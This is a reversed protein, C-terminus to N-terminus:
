VLTFENQIGVTRYTGDDKLIVSHTLDLDVSGVSTQVLHLREQLFVIIVRAQRLLQRRFLQLDVIQQLDCVISTSIRDLLLTAGNRCLLIRAPPEGDEGRPAGM